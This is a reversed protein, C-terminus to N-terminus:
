LGTNFGQLDRPVHVAALNTVNGSCMNQAQRHALPRPLLPFNSKIGTGLIGCGRLLATDIFLSLVIYEPVTNCLVM